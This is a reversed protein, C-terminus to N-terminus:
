RKIKAEREKRRADRREKRLQQRSKTENDITVETDMKNGRGKVKIKGFTIDQGPPAIWKITAIIGAVIGALILTIYQYIKNM